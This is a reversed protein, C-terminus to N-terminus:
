KSKRRLQYYPSVFIYTLALALPLIALKWGHLLALLTFLIAVLACIVYVPHEIKPYKIKSILLLSFAGILPLIALTNALSYLIVTILALAPTPLGIFSSLEDEKQYTFRALRLIGLGIILAVVLVVLANEFNFFASGRELEYYSKYLLVAPAFCFSISDSCSDLYRGLERKLKLAKAVRGDLGDLIICGLILSAGLKCQSDLIYMVALAGLLGNSLTVLDPLTLQSRMKGFRQKSAKIM